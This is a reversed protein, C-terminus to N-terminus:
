ILCTICLILGDFAPICTEAYLFLCVHDTQHLPPAHAGPVGNGANLISLLTLDRKLSAM